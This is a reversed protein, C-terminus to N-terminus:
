RVTKKGGAAGATAGGSSVAWSENFARIQKLYEVATLPVGASQLAEKLEAFDSSEIDTKQAMYYILFLRLKDEV